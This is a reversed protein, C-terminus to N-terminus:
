ILLESPLFKLYKRKVKKFSARDVEYGLIRKLILCVKDNSIEQLYNLYFISTVKDFFYFKMTKGDYFCYGEKLV